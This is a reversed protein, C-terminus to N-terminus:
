TSLVRVADQVPVKHMGTHWRNVFLLEGVRKPLLVLGELERSGGRSKPLDEVQSFRCLGSQENENRAALRFDCFEAPSM